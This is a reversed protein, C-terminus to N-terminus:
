NEKRKLGFGIAAVSILAVFAYSISAGCSAAQETADISEESEEATETETETETESEAETETESETEPADLKAISLDEIVKGNLDFSKNCLTCVKHGKVGAAEVTAPVEAIWEDFSHANEDVAIKETKVHAADHM